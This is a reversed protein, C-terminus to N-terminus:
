MMICKLIYSYMCCCCFYVTIIIHSYIHSYLITNTVEKLMTYFLKLVIEDNKNREADQISNIIFVNCQLQNPTASSTPKELAILYFHLGLSIPIITLSKSLLTNYYDHKIIIRKIEQKMQAKAENGVANLEIETQIRYINHFKQFLDVGFVFTDDNPYVKKVYYIYFNIIEDALEEGATISDYALQSISGIQNNITYAALKHTSPSESTDDITEIENSSTSVDNKSSQSQQSTTSSQLHDITFQVLPRWAVISPKLKTSTTKNSSSSRSPTNSSSSRSPASSQSLSVDSTSINNDVDMSDDDISHFM